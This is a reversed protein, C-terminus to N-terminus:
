GGVINLVAVKVYVMATVVVLEEELELEDDDLEVDVLLEEDELVEDLEVDM